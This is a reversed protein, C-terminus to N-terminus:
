GTSSPPLVTWIPVEDFLGPVSFSTTVGNLTNTWALLSPSTFLPRVWYSSQIKQDMQLWTSAAAVPNFNAIAQNFLATVAVARWGSPFADAYGPGSWSRAAYSAATITPRTFV